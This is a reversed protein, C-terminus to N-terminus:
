KKIKEATLTFMLRTLRVHGGGSQSTPTSVSPDSSALPAEPQKNHEPLDALM